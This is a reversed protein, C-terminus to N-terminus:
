GHLAQGSLPISFVPRGKGSAAVRETRNSRESLSANRTLRQLSLHWAHVHYGNVLVLAISVAGAYIHTRLGHEFYFAALGLRLVHRFADVAQGANFVTRLLRDRNGLYLSTSATM